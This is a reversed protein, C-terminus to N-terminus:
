ISELAVFGATEFCWGIDSLGLTPERRPREASMRLPGLRQRLCGCGFRRGSGWLLLGKQDSPPLAAFRALGDM